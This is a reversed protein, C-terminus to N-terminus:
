GGRYYGGFLWEWFGRNPQQAARRRRDGFRLEPTQLAKRNSMTLAEQQSLAVM